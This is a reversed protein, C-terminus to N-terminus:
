PLIDLLEEPSAVVHTGLRAACGSTNLEHARRRDTAVVDCYPVALSMADIDFFDNVTWTSQPNQHAAVQLSVHVDGSPMSDVFSRSSLRDEWLDDLCRGRRALSENLMNLLEVIMYRASVVDRIRGRRWRPDAAFREAQEREERARTEQVRKVATPDWGLM